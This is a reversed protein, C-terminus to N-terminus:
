EKTCYYVQTKAFGWTDADEELRMAQIDNQSVFDSANLVEVCFGAARLREAYDRGYKRVHDSQGFERFRGAKSVVSFDEYTNEMDAVPALLIAFGKKKLVRFLESMAKRDDDVHELVHNCFIVDFSNEPYQIDTIDMKIMVNPNYLDATLYNDGFQKKLKPELCAEPAIHLVAANKEQFLGTKERLFLWLLRQREFSGCHICRAKDRPPFGAPKFYSTKGCVPCYSPPADKYSRKIAQRKKNRMYLAYVGYPIFAKAISKIM